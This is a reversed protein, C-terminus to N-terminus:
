SQKLMAIRSTWKRKLTKSSKSTASIRSSKSATSDVSDRRRRQKADPETDHQVCIDQLPSRKKKGGPAHKDSTKGTKEHVTYLSPPRSVPSSRISAVSATSASAGTMPCLSIKSLTADQNRWQEERAMAFGPNNKCRIEWVIPTNRSHENLLNLSDQGITYITSPDSAHPYDDRNFQWHAEVPETHDLEVAHGILWQFGHPWSPTTHYHRSGLLGVNPFIPKIFERLVECVGDSDVPKRGLTGMLYVVAPQIGPIAQRVLICPRKKGINRRGVEKLALQSRRLADPDDQIVQTAQFVMEIPTSVSAYVACIDGPVCGTTCDPPIPVPQLSSASCILCDLM